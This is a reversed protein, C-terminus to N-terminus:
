GNPKPVDEQKALGLDALSAGGAIKIQSGVLDVGSIEETITHEVHISRPPALVPAFPARHARQMCEGASPRFSLLPPFSAARGLVWLQSSWDWM